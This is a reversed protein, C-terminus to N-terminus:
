SKKNKRAKPQFEVGLDGQFYHEPIPIEPPREFFISYYLAPFTGEHWKQVLDEIDSDEGEPDYGSKLSNDFMKAIGQWFGAAIGSKYEKIIDYGTKSSERDILKLMLAGQSITMNKATKEFDKFLQKQVAGVFKDKQSRTMQNVTITSDALRDVEAAALAFPYVKAFNYVLRYYKRWDKGKDKRGRAFIWVPDLTDFYVTDGNEVKYTLYGSRSTGGDNFIERSALAERQRRAKQMARQIHNQAFGEAATLLLLLLVYATRKGMKGAFIAIIEIETGSGGGSSRQM